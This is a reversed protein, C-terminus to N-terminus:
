QIRIIKHYLFMSTIFNLLRIRRRLIWGNNIVNNFVCEYDGADSPEPDEIVLTTSKAATPVGGIRVFSGNHIWIIIM